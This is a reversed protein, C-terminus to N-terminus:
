KFTMIKFTHMLLECELHLRVAQAPATIDTEVKIDAAM